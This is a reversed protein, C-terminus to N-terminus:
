DEKKSEKSERFGLVAEKQEDTLDGVNEAAAYLIDRIREDVTKEGLNFFEDFNSLRGAEILFRRETESFVPQTKFTEGYAVNFEADTPITRGMWLDRKRNTNGPMHISFINRFVWDADGKFRYEETLVRVCARMAGTIIEDRSFEMTVGETIKTKHSREDSRGLLYDASVDFKQCIEMLYDARINGKKWTPYNGASGTIEVVLASISTNNEKCLANVRMFLTSDDM